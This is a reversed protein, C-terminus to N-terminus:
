PKQLIPSFSQFLPPSFPSSSLLPSGGKIYRYKNPGWKFPLRSANPIYIAHGGGDM